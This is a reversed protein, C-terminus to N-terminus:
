KKKRNRRQQILIAADMVGNAVYKADKKFSNV